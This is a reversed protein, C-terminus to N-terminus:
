ISLGYSFFGDDAFKSEEIWAELQLSDQCFSVLVIPDGGQTLKRLWKKANSKKSIQDWWVLHVHGRKPFNHDRVGGKVQELTQLFLSSEERPTILKRGYRQKLKRNYQAQLEVRDSFDLGYTKEIAEHHLYKVSFDRECSAALNGNAWTPLEALWFQEVGGSQYLEPRFSSDPQHACSLLLWTMILLNFKFM